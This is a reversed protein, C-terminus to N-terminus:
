MIIAHLSHYVCWVCLIKGFRNRVGIVENDENVPSDINREQAPANHSVPSICPTLDVIQDSLLSTIKKKRQSITLTNASEKGARSSNHFKELEQVINIDLLEFSLLDQFELKKQKKKKVISLVLDFKVAEKDLLTPAVCYVQLSFVPYFNSSSPSLTSGHLWCTSRPSTCTKM